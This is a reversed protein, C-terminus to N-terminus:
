SPPEFEISDIIAQEEALAEATAEPFHLALALVRTGDVDLVWARITQRPGDVFFSPQTAGSL